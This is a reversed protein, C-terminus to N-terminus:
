PDLDPILDADAGHNGRGHRDSLQRDPAARRISLGRWPRHLTPTVDNQVQPDDANTYSYNWEQLVTPPMGPILHSLDTVRSNADLTWNTQVGSPM